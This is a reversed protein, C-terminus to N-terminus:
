RGAGDFWELPATVGGAKAFDEGAADLKGQQKLIQGRRSFYVPHPNMSIATTFDQLAQPYQGALRYAEGRFAYLTFINQKWVGSAIAIAATFDNVAASYNGRAAYLRGREKYSPVEPQIDIVRSWMSISDKWVAIDRITMSGLVVIVAMLIYGYRAKQREFGSGHLCVSGFACAVAITPALSALYTFRAAYAQDGNQFFALVPILPFIYLLLLPILWRHSKRKVYCFCAFIVFLVAKFTYFHPIPDPILYFPMLGFPYLMLWIYQILANGSVILRQSFPFESYPVLYGAQASFHVTLIAMSVSLLIFPIKESLVRRVHGRRLRNLPYWDIVLLMAPVVVSISKSMLSLAFLSLSILYLCLFGRVNSERKGVYLLYFYIAGLTFLGNLVDKRETVWAVSEVRLPHIGWLLGALLPVVIYLFHINKAREATHCETETLVSQVIQGAILSVLGANGAHLLANTLHYGLPNFKWYHFDIAFSIWTLPMWWGIHPETFASVLLNYDFQRIIPNILVYEPDDYNVFDCGLSRLFVLLCVLGVGAALAKDSIREFWMYAKDAQKTVNPLVNIAFFICIL